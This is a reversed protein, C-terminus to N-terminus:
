FGGIELEDSESLISLDTANSDTARVVDGPMVDGPNRFFQDESRASGSADLYLTAGDLPIPIGLISLGPAFPDIETVPGEFRVDDGGSTADDREISRARAAAIGTEVARIELFDGPVIEDFGFSEDDVSSKDELVTDRDVSVTVGLISLTRAVADVSTVAADIRVNRDDPDDDEWEIRDARLTGAVLAGEVEVTDGPMPVFSAPDFVATSADVPVDGVCFDPSEACSAVVGELEARAFDGSAFGEVELEVENADVEAGTLRLAGRVELRDGASLSSRTLEDFDTSPVYRVVVSGLDFIGSGDPQKTLNSVVGRLEVQSNGPFVGKGEVRTAQILGARDVFGSVEVVQDMALGAFSAGGDFRTRESDVVVSTGLVTFSKRLGPITEVPVGNIPGEVSDDFRVAIARGTQGAADFDGEVRVIMGVRLGAETSPVGDIEITAASLDWEVGNVFISGFASISGQSIGTGSMGGNDAVDGGGASCALLALPVLGLLRRIWRRISREESAGVGWPGMFRRASESM